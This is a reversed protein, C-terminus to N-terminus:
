RDQGLTGDDEGRNMAVCSVFEHIVRCPGPGSRETLRKLFEATLEQRKAPDTADYFTTGAGSKLLHELAGGADACEFVVEGEELHEVTLGARAMEARVHERGLPFDFDVQRTLVSPDEAVLEAFIETERRPSDKRHVVFALRGRPALAAAAAEFFPRLPVYGLVWSTFIVDFPGRGDLEALADGVLFRVGHAGALRDRARMLMNESIDAAIITGGDGLGAALRVTGYGTGCGAEFVRADGLPGLRRVLDDVPAAARSVWFEDYDDHVENYAERLEAEGVRAVAEERVRFFRPVDHNRPLCERCIRESEEPPLPLRDGGIRSALSQGACGCRPKRFHEGMRDLIEALPRDAVNGFSLPVLNCPSVEGAGDVYLHTLGAGCGFAGSSELYALSSLIPMDLQAAYEEQYRVLLAKEEAGLLVDRRGALRGTPSPELLHVELAGIERAFRMFGAFRERELFERTAVAVVHAYLGAWRANGVARLATAFAGERGRKRDHEAEDESDLSVGVGFVGAARLSSAREPTLGDGTTGVILSTREDFCAAIDELDDRLLPEGGTLALVTTGQESLERALRTSAELPLDRQSRGANYCHWCRYGCRNTVAWTVSFLRHTSGNTEVAGFHSAMRDFAPGPYPPLHTNIVYQEGFRLGKERSLYDRFFEGLRPHLRSLPPKAAMRTFLERGTVCLPRAEPIM